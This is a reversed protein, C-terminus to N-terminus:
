SILIKSLPKHILGNTALTENDYPTCESVGDFRTVVGGAERVMIMGAAGDWPKLYMEWYGDFRGCAVYCLDLAASGARRIGLTRTLLRTFNRVNDDKRKKGYAFGTALFSQSLATTKSVTIRKNNLFAGKGAEALFLEDRMPDYVVGLILAGNYELGISVSFFPFAHAFNTTGDLPDIVWTYGSTGSLPACEESLIAHDKFNARIRRIILAEASKDVDTVINDKGKYSIRAVKGVSRKILLGSERAAAIAIKKYLKTM